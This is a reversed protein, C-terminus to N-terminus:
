VRTFISEASVHQYVKGTSNTLVASLNATLVQIQCLVGLILAKLPMQKERFCFKTGCAFRRKTVSIRESRAFILRDTQGKTYINAKFSVVVEALLFGM